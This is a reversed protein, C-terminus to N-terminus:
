TGEDAWHRENHAGLESTHVAIHFLEAFLDLRVLRGASPVNTRLLDPADPRSRPTGPTRCILCASSEAGVAPVDAVHQGDQRRQGDLFFFLLLSSFFMLLCRFLSEIRFITWSYCNWKFDEKKEKM